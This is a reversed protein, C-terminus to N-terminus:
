KRFDADDWLCLLSPLYSQTSEAFNKELLLSIKGEIMMEFLVPVRYDFGVEYM